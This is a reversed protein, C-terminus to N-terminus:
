IQHIDKVTPTLYQHLNPNLTRGKDTVLEEMLAYGVGMLCGGEIQSYVADPNVMKGAEHVAVLQEVIV